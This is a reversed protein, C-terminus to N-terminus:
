FSFMNWGGVHAETALVLSEATLSPHSTVTQRIQNLEDPAVFYDPIELQTLSTCSNIIFMVDTAVMFVGKLILKKLSTRTGFLEFVVHSPLFYGKQLLSCAAPQQGSYEFTFEELQDGITLFFGIIGDYSWTLYPLNATKVHCRLISENSKRPVRQVMATSFVDMAYDFRFTTLQTFQMVSAILSECSAFPTTPNWEYLRRDGSGTAISFSRMNTALVLSSEFARVSDASLLGQFGISLPELYLCVLTGMLCDHGELPEGGIRNLARDSLLGVYHLSQLVPAHLREMIIRNLVCQNTTFGELHLRRLNPFVLVAPPAQPAMDLGVTPNRNLELHTLSEALGATRELMGIFSRASAISRERVTLASWFEPNNCVDRFCRCLRRLRQLDQRALYKLIHFVLVEDMEWEPLTMASFRVMQIEVPHRRTGRRSQM